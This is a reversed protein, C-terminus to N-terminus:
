SCLPLVLLYELEYAHLCGPRNVVFRPFHLCQSSLSSNVTLIKRPLEQSVFISNRLLQHPKHLLEKQHTKSFIEEQVGHRKKLEVLGPLKSPFFFVGKAAAIFHLSTLCEQLGSHLCEEDTASCIAKDKLTSSSPGDLFASCTSFNQLGRLSSSLKGACNAFFGRLLGLQINKM